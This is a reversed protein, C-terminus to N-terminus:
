KQVTEFQIASYYIPSDDKMVQFHVLGATQSDDWTIVKLNDGASSESLFIQSMTKVKFKALDGQLHKYFGAMSATTGANMCFRVYASHNAHYYADHDSHQVVMHYEFASPPPDAPEVRPEPSKEVLHGFDQMLNPPLTLPRRTTRNVMVLTTIGSALLDQSSLHHVNQLLQLSTRGIHHLVLDVKLGQDPPPFPIDSAVHGRFLCPLRTYYQDTVNTRAGVNFVLGDDKITDQLFFDPHSWALNRIGEFWRTMNWLNVNGSFVFNFVGDFGQM